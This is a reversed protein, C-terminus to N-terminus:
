RCLVKGLPLQSLLLMQICTYHEQVCLPVRAPAQGRPGSSLSAVCRPMPLRGLGRRGPVFECAGPLLRQFRELMLILLHMFQVPAAGLAQYFAKAADSRSLAAAGALLSVEGWDAEKAEAGGGGLRRRKGHQRAREEQLWAHVATTQETVVQSPRLPVRQTLFAESGFGLVEPAADPAGGGSSGPADLLPLQPPSPLPLALPPPSPAGFPGDHMPVDYMMADEGDERLTPLVRIPGLLDQLM